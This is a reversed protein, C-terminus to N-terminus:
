FSWILEYEPNGYHQDELIVNLFKSRTKTMTLSLDVCDYKERLIKKLAKFNIIKGDEIVVNLDGISTSINYKGDPVTAKEDSSM